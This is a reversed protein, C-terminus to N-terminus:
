FDTLNIMDLYKKITRRKIDNSVDMFEGELTTFIKNVLYKKNSEVYRVRDDVLIFPVKVDKYDDTEPNYRPQNVTSVPFNRRLYTLLRDETNDKYKSLIDEKEAETIILRM